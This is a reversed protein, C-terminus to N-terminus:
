ILGTSSPFVWFPETGSSGVPPSVVATPPKELNFEVALLSKDPAKQRNIAMTGAQLCRRFTIAAADDGTEGNRWVLMVREEAGPAPPGFGSADNAAGAGANIALVMNRRTTEAMAFAVKGMRGTTAYRIPDLEEEVEIGESTIEYTFTSGDETYGVETFTASALTASASLPESASAAAVYLVGPGIQVNGPTGM